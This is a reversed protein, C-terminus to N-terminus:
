RSKEAAGAINKAMAPFILRHFPSVFGWYLRGRIGKPIFVARQRFDCGRGAETTTFELWASGSVQMEARLLLRHEPDLEEVRWWDVPDGVRLRDPLRRGRNLGVGGVLKDWVGRVKWALPWSYWGNRGGIGEIVPWLQEPTLGPFRLTRDDTFVREGAWEPDNPLPKAAQALEGADADWNTDVAGEAERQLALRVSQEYNLLGDPPPSIVSDVDRDKTVADEQLSQVLPLTLTFPLPTVLGVWIGSLTPAPLPLTLVHRPKLGAIAAFTKMIEAYKLVDHSGIDFARNVDGDIDVARLLYYLVDRVALPEVHNTVWRPAPMLRLTLALHRVMEFSASGSGIIIGAQFAVTPVSSDILIRGVEARSRMHMSLDAKDPHLGGLYVIRRVGAAEATEAVRRATAAERDEFDHGSGMSHVLHHIIEAGTAAEVLGDGDDLDVRHIDVDDAWPVQELKHPSRVAVRVRHGAQLLRPVLRGGIYGTAGLVLVTRPHRSPEIAEPHSQEVSDGYTYNALKALSRRSESLCDPHWGGHRM